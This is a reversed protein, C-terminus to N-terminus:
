TVNFGTILSIIYEEKQFFSMHQILSMWIIPFFWGPINSILGVSYLM